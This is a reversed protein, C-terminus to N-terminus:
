VSVGNCVGPLVLRCVQDAKIAVRRGRKGGGGGCRVEVCKCFMRFVHCQATITNCLYCDAKM